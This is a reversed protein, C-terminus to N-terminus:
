ETTAEISKALAETKEIVEPTAAALAAELSEYKLNARENLDIIYIIHHTAEVVNDKGTTGLLVEEYRAELAARIQDVVDTAETDIKALEEKLVENDEKGFWQKIYTGQKYGADQRFVNLVNKAVYLEYLKDWSLEVEDLVHQWHRGLPLTQAYNHLCFELTTMKLSPAPHVDILQFNIHKAAREHDGSLEKIQRSVYFHFADVVELQAQELNPVVKKWWKYAGMHEIAEAIELAGATEWNWPMTVWNPNVKSNIGDQLRVITSLQALTLM